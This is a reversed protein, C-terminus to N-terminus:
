ARLLELGNQLYLCGGTRSSEPPGDGADQQGLLEVMTPYLDGSILDYERRAEARYWDSAYAVDVESFGSSVLLRDYEELTKFDYTLM